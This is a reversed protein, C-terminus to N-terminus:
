SGLYRCLHFVINKISCQSAFVAKCHNSFLQKLFFVTNFVVTKFVVSQIVSYQFCSNQFCSNQFCINQCGMHNYSSRTFSQLLGSNPNLTTLMKFCCCMYIGSLLCFSFLHVVWYKSVLGLCQESLACRLTTAPANRYFPMWSHRALQLIRRVFLFIRLGPSAEIRPLCRGWLCMM